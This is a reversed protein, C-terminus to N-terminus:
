EAPEFPPLPSLRYKRAWGDLQLEHARIPVFYYALVRVVDQLSWLAVTDGAHVGFGWEVLRDTLRQRFSSYDSARAVAVIAPMFWEPISKGLVSLARGHEQPFHRNGVCYNRVESLTNVVRFERLAVLEDFSEPRHQANVRQAPTFIALLASRLSKADRHWGWYVETLIADLQVSDCHLGLVEVISNLAAHPVGRDHYFIATKVQM